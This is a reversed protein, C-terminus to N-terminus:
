EPAQYEAPLPAARTSTGDRSTLYDHLWHRTTLRDHAIKVSRLRGPREGQSVAAKRLTAPALGALAAAQSLSLLEDQGGLADDKM